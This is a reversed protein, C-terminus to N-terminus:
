PMWSPITPMGKNQMIKRAMNPFICMKGGNNNIGNEFRKFKNLPPSCNGLNNAFDTTLHSCTTMKPNAPGSATLHRQWVVLQM